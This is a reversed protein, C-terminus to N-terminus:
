LKTLSVTHLCYLISGIISSKLFAQLQSPIQTTTNKGTLNFSLMCCALTSKKLPPIYTM